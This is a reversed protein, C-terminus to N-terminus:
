KTSPARLYQKQRIIGVIRALFSKPVGVRRIDQDNALRLPNERCLEDAISKSTWLSLLQHVDDLRPERRGPAHHADSAVFHIMGANLLAFANQQVWTKSNSMLSTRNVSCYAGNSIWREVTSLCTQSDHFYREPHAIIAMQNLERLENIALDMLELDYPPVSEILVYRTNEYTMHKGLRILELGAEDLYIESGLRVQIPLKLENIKERIEIMRSNLVDFPTQFKGNNMFHPTMFLIQTQHKVAIELFRITGEFDQVGDDVGCIGHSHTDVFRSM